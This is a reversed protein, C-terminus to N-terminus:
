SSRLLEALAACCKVHFQPCNDGFEGDRPPEPRLLVPVCGANGACLMDIDTDGVFWVAEGRPVGSGDLALEVPEVAPKDRAADTAGVIRGFYGNWALHEAELRLIEGTKNSVVGLWYRGDASLSRLMETAGERERLQELHRARFTGYYIEMAEQAREGFLAPFSDRASARVRLKTEEFSWAPAGMAALTVNLAHHITPWTDVLTNDWDFLLARPRPDTM